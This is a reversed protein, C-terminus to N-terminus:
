LRRENGTVFLEVLTRLGNLHVLHKASLVSSEFMNLICEFCVGFISWVHESSAGFMSRGHESWAGFM